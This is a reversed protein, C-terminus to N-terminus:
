NAQAFAFFDDFGNGQPTMAGDAYLLEARADRSGAHSLEDNARGDQIFKEVAAHLKKEGDPTSLGFQAPLAVEPRGDVLAAQIPRHVAALVNLNYMAPDTAGIADLQLLFALIIAKM